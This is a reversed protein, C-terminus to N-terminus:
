LKILKCYMVTNAKKIQVYYIGAPLGSLDLNQDKIFEKKVIQGHSNIITIADFSKLGNLEIFGTTPNPYVTIDTENVETATTINSLDFVRVHGAEDGNGNNRYAGIALIQGNSSISVSHGSWDIAGEGEIEKGHQVWQNGNWKYVRVHGPNFGVLTNTNGGIAITNGDDSLSVSRGSQAEPGKGDIDEGVQTWNIGDWEYVRVHGSRHGNGDNSSAGIAVKSGNGSLSVSRGSADGTAEGDIDQGMQMWELGDWKFVRVHGSYAGNGSNAPAGIALLNGDDSMSVSRGFSDFAAEGEIDNGFQIWETGNWEFVRVYGKHNGNGAAGAAVRNGAISISEGLGTWEFARKGDIDEGLQSWEIGDWEYVRVHGAESITGGVSNMYAGIAVRLGDPSLSVGRGSGDFAAEGDIDEGVQLWETGNWEFIRVQGANNGNDDNGSAGVAVRQGNSSLSISYGANDRAAEGDIDSGLQEQGFLTLAGFSGLLSIM